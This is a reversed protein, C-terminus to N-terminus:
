IYLSNYLANYLPNLNSSSNPKYYFHLSLATIGGYKDCIPQFMQCACIRSLEYLCYIKGCKDVINIM